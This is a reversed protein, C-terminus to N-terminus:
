RKGAKSRNWAIFEQKVLGVVIDAHRTAAAADSADVLIDALAEDAILKAYEMAGRMKGKEFFTEAADFKSAASKIARAYKAQDAATPPRAQTTKPTTKGKSPNVVPPVGNILRSREVELLRGLLAKAKDTNPGFLARDTDGSLEKAIADLFNVNTASGESGNKWKTVRCSPVAPLPRGSEVERKTRTRRSMTIILGEGHGGRLHDLNAEVLEAFSAFRGVLPVTSAGTAHVIAALPESMLIMFADDDANEGDDDGPDANDNFSTAFGAAQFAVGLEWACVGVAPQVMVGFIQYTGGLKRSAYDFLGSNCMLEGYVCFRAIQCPDVSAAHCVGDKIMRADLAHM